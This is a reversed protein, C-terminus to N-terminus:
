VLEVRTADVGNDKWFQELEGHSIGCVWCFGRFEYTPENFDGRKRLIIPWPCDRILAVTDGLAIPLRPMGLFGGQTAFVCIKSYECMILMMNYRAAERQVAFDCDVSLRM